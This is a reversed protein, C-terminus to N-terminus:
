RHFWDLGERAMRDREFKQIRQALRERRKEKKMLTARVITYVFKDLERLEPDDVSGHLEVEWYALASARLRGTLGSLIKGVPRPLEGPLLPRSGPTHTTFPTSRPNFSRDDEAAM